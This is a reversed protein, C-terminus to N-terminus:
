CSTEVINRETLDRTSASIHLLVSSYLNEYWASFIDRGVGEVVLAGMLLLLNKWKSDINLKDNAVLVFDIKLTLNVACM